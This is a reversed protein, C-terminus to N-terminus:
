ANSAEESEEDESDFAMLVEDLDMLKDELEERLRIIDDVIELADGDLGRPRAADQYRDRFDSLVEYQQKTLAAM